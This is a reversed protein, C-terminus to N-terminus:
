EKLIHNHIEVTAIDAIAAPLIENVKGQIYKGALWMRIQGVSWVPGMALDALPEPLKKRKRWNSIVQKHEGCIEALEGTGLYPKNYAVLRQLSENINM